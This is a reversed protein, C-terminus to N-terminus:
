GFREKMKQGFAKKWQFREIWELDDRNYDKFIRLTEDPSTNRAMQLQTGQKCITVAWEDGDVFYWASLYDGDERELKVIDNNRPVAGGPAFARELDVDGPTDVQGITDSRLRMYEGQFSLTDNMVITAPVSCKCRTVELKLDTSRQTSLAGVFLWSM